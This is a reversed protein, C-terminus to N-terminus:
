IKNKAYLLEWEKIIYHIATSISLAITFIIFFLQWQELVIFIIAILQFTTTLKGLFTVPIAKIIDIKKGQLYLFIRGLLVVIERSFM